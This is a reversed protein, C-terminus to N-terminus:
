HTVEMREFYNVKIRHLGKELPIAGKELELGHLGDNDVVLKDDVFLQSGDDSDTFFDYVGDEEIKILGEFTFAYYDDQMRGDLVFDTADLKKMPTIEAFEPLSDWVGEYYECMLGPQVPEVDIAPM